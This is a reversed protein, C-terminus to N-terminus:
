NEVNQQEITSIPISIDSFINKVFSFWSFTNNEDLVKSLSLAEKVLPNINDQNIRSLYCPVQSVLFSFIAYQNLEARVAFNCLTKSTGLITKSFKLNNKFPLTDVLTLIDCPRNNALARTKSLIIQKYHDMIWIESKYTRIPRVLSDFLKCMTDIPLNETNSTHKYVSYLAKIAKRSLVKSSPIFSGTSNIINGLYKYEKVNEICKNNIYFPTDIIKNFHQFM